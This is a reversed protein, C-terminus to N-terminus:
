RGGTDIITGNIGFLPRERSDGSCSRLSIALAIIVIAIGIAELLNDM